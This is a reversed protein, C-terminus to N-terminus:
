SDCAVSFFVVSKARLGLEVPNKRRSVRRQAQNSFDCELVTISFGSGPSNRPRARFGQPKEIVMMQSSAESCSDDQLDNNKGENSDSAGSANRQAQFHLLNYGAPRHTGDGDGLGIGAQRICGEENRGPPLLDRLSSPGRSTLLGGANSGIEGLNQFRPRDELTTAPQPESPLETSPVVRRDPQLRRRMGAADTEPRDAPSPACAVPTRAPVVTLDIKSQRIEQGPDISNARTARGELGHPFAVLLIGTGRCVERRRTARGELDHPFVVPLIGTGRVPRGFDEVNEGKLRLSVFCLAWRSPCAAHLSIRSPSDM